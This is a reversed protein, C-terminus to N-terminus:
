GVTLVFVSRGNKQFARGLELMFWAQAPNDLNTVLLYTRTPLQKKVRQWDGRKELLNGSFIELTYYPQQANM